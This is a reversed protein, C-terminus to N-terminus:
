QAVQWTTNRKGWYM